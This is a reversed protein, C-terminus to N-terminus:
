LLVSFVSGIAAIRTAPALPSSRNIPKRSDMAWCLTNRWSGGVIAHLQNSTDAGHPGDKTRAINRAILFAYLLMFPAATWGAVTTTWSSALLLAGANTSTYYSDNDLTNNIPLGPENSSEYRYTIYKGHGFVLTCLTSALILMPVFLIVFAEGLERKSSLPRHHKSRRSFHTVLNEMDRLDTSHNESTSLRDAM